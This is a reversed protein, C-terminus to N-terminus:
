GPDKKAARTSKEKPIPPDDLQIEIGGTFHAIVNYILSALFTLSYGLVGFIFPAILLVVPGSPTGGTPSNGTSSFGGILLGLIIFPLAVLVFVYTMVKATQHASIKRLRKKM